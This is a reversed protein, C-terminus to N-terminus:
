LELFGVDLIEIRAEDEMFRFVFTFCFNAYSGAVFPLGAFRPYERMLTVPSRALRDFLADIADILDPSPHQELIHDLVAEATPSIVLVYPM